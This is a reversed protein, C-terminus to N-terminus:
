NEGGIFGGLDAQVITKVKLQAETNIPEIVSSDGKALAITNTKLGLMGKPAPVKYINLAPFEELVPLIVSQYVKGAIILIKTIGMTSVIKRLNAQVEPIISVANRETIKHDYYSIKQDPHLLEYHGSLVRFNLKNKVCYELGYKFTTGNYLEWAKHGGTKKAKSCGLIVLYRPDRTRSDPAELFAQREELREM